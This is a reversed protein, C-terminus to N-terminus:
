QQNLIFIKLLALLTGGVRLIKNKNEQQKQLHYKVNNIFLDILIINLM